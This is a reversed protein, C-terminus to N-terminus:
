VVQFIYFKLYYTEPVNWLIPHDPAQQRAEIQRLSVNADRAADKLMEVFLEEKMFHSCSCTALYGGRPLLKMAKLNIEKYGRIANKVTSGSKTFAPPDLIIFDYAHSHNNFLESLLDFVNAELGKMVKDFGNIQANHDAMRVAEASIDVATVSAAGGQAANLAFSGTHTFCDLVHKGKAIKAVAQRNYKQDLFFGTKQGNEVDVTYKIGNEVIETTVSGHEAPLLPTEFWNKGEDMGELRRIKVDNREFLGRIEQGMEKLIKILLNFIMEKRVEIGLSLTQTVLLDNFRDVTLGPFQDAEGFILRCCKFDQEGMVTLRYDLAYRLRREWFAEDFKDNTNTSIIRVRIKSTDNVFGTGLYKGKNTVVDVLDGNEYEGEVKTVEEGFVWPHGNRATREGKPTIFFRAYKRM